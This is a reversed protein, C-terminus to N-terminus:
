TPITMIVLDHLKSPKNEDRYHYLYPYNYDSLWAM